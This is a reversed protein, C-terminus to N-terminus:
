PRVVGGGLMIRLTKVRGRGDRFELLPEKGQSALLLGRSTFCVWDSPAFAQGSQAWRAELRVGQPLDLRLATDETFNAGRCSSAYWARFGSPGLEVRYASTTAMAKARVQKLYGEAQAVADQLPDSLPRLNLVGIAAVIGLIGLVALLEVLTAGPSRM